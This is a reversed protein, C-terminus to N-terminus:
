YLVFTLLPLVILLYLPLPFCIKYWSSYLFRIFVRVADHPVGRISITHWKGHRKAQKLMGRIVTSASGQLNSIWAFFVIDIYVLDLAKYLPKPVIEFGVGLTQIQRALYVSSFYQDVTKM